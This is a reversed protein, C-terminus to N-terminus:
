ESEEVTIKVNAAIIDRPVPSSVGVEFLRDRFRGLRRFNIRQQWVMPLTRLNSWSVGYDDSYRLWVHPEPHFNDSAELDTSPVAPLTTQMQLELAALFVWNRGQHLYPSVRRSVLATGNDTYATPDLAYLNGSSIDGVLNQGFSQVCGMVRWYTFGYSERRHWEGERLDYGWTHGDPFTLYYLWHDGTLVTFSFAQSWNKGRIDQEIARTSIVESQYGRALRISGYNDLWLVANDILQVSNRAACGVQLATGPQTQFLIPETGTDVFMEVTRTGLVWVEDHNIITSVIPDPAVSAQFRNAAQYSLGDALNSVFWYQGNPSIGTFYQDIFGTRSSGTFAADTVRSFTVTATNYIFRDPGTDIALEYGNAIQNHAMSVSGVGTVTGLSSGVTGSPSVQYLGDGAVVFLNGEVDHFGRIPSQPLTAFLRMGPVGKLMGANRSQPSQAKEVLYNVCDQQDFPRADNKYAGGVIPFAQRAM